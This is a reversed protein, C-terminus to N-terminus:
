RLGRRRSLVRALATMEPMNLARAVAVITVATAAGAAGVSILQGILSQGVAGDLVHWVLWGLLGSALAVLLAQLFGETIFRLDLDGTRRSLYHVLV